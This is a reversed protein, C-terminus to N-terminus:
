RAPEPVPGCDVPATTLAALTEPDAYAEATVRWERLVTAVLEPADRGGAAADALDIAFARLDDEPLVGTWPMAAQITAPLRDAREQSSLIEAFTSLADIVAQPMIVAVRQGDMTLHTVVGHRANDAARALPEDEAAVEAAPESMGTLM